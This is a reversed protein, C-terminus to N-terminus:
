KPMVARVYYTYYRPSSGGFYNAGVSLILDWSNPSKEGLVDYNITSSWFGIKNAGVPIFLSNGNTGKVKYGNVGNYSVWEWSCKKLENLETKTPMRWKGGWKVHAVDYDTGSIDKGIAVYSESASDYYLYANRSRNTRPNVEGWAYTDGYQEPSTAGINCSAWKVSLGLDVAEGSSVQANEPNENTYEVYEINNMNYQVTQGSKYHINMTQTWGITAYLVTAVILLNRRM